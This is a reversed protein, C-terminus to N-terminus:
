NQNTARSDLPSRTTQCVGGIGPTLKPIRARTKRREHLSSRGM